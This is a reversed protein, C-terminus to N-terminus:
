DSGLIKKRLVELVGNGEKSIEKSPLERKKAKFRASSGSAEKILYDKTGTGSHAKEVISAECSHSKIEAETAKYVLDQGSVRWSSISVDKPMKLDELNSEIGEIEHLCSESIGNSAVFSKEKLVETVLRQLEKIDQGESEQAKPGKDEKLDAM